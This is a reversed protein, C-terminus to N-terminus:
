SDIDITWTPDVLSLIKFRMQDDKPIKLTIRSMTRRRPMTVQDISTKAGARLLAALLIQTERDNPRHKESTLRVLLGAPPYLLRTRDELEAKYFEAARGSLAQLVRHDPDLTQVLFPAKKGAALNSFAALITLAEENAQYEPKHWLGDALIVGVLGVPLDYLRTRYWHLLAETGLLVDASPIPPPTQGEKQRAIEAITAQPIAKKLDQALRQVGLKQVAIRPGRCKECFLPIDRVTRCNRCVLGSREAAMPQRCSQCAAVDRCDRCVVLGGLGKRNHFLVSIKGNQRAEAVSRLLQESLLGPNGSKWENKLNILITEAGSPLPTNPNQHFARISPTEAVVGLPIGLASARRAALERADYRPNAEGQKHSPDEERDIIIAGLDRAPTLVALRTGILLPASGRAFALMSNWSEKIGLSGSLTVLRPFDSGLGDALFRLDAEEAALILAQRGGAIAQRIMRCHALLREDPTSSVEVRGTVSSQNPTPSELPTELDDIERKPRTPLFTFVVLPLSTGYARAAWELINIDFRLGAIRESVNKLTGKQATENKVSRVVGAILGSRFPVKVVDGPLLNLGEPILYDFFSFRPPLRLAPIIEAFM